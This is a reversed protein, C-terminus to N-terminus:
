KEPETNAVRACLARAEDFSLPRKPRAAHIFRRRLREAEQKLEEALTKM